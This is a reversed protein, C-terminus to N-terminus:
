NGKGICGSTILATRTKSRSIGFEEALKYVDEPVGDDMPAETIMIAGDYCTVVVDYDPPINASDLMERPIFLQEQCEKFKGM